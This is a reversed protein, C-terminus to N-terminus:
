GLSIKGLDAVRREYIMEVLGNKGYYRLSIKHGPEIKARAKLLSDSLEVFEGNVLYNGEWGRLEFRGDNKLILPAASCPQIKQQVKVQVCQYRGSLSIIETTQARCVPLFCLGACLLLSTRLLSSLFQPRPM